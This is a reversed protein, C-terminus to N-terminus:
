SFVLEFKYNTINLFKFKFISFKETGSINELYGEAKKRSLFLSVKNLSIKLEQAVKSSKFTTNEPQKKLWDVIREYDTKSKKTM